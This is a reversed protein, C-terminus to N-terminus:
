VHGPEVDQSVLHETVYPCWEPIEVRFVIEPSEPYHPCYLAGEHWANDAVDSWICKEAYYLFGDERYERGKRQRCRQCVEKNLM